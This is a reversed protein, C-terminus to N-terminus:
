NRVVQPRPKPDALDRPVSERERQSELNRGILEGAAKALTPLSREPLAVHSGPAGGADRWRGHDDRPPDPPTSSSRTATKLTNGAGSGPPELDRLRRGSAFM